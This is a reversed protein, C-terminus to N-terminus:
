ILDELEESPAESYLPRKQQDRRNADAYLKVIEPIIGPRVSAGGRGSQLPELRNKLLHLGWSEFLEGVSFVYTFADDTSIVIGVLRGNRDVVPAGSDGRAAFKDSSDRARIRIANPIYMNEGRGPYRFFIPVRTASVIGESLTGDLRHLIVGAAFVDRADVSDSISSFGAYEPVIPFNRDLQVLQLDQFIRSPASLPKPEGIRHGNISYVDLSSSASTVHAATVAFAQGNEDLVIPGLRGDLISVIPMGPSIFDPSHGSLRRVTDLGAAVTEQPVASSQGYAEVVLPFGFITSPLLDVGHPRARDPFYEFLFGRMDDFDFRGAVGVIRKVLDEAQEKRQKLEDAFPGSPPWAKLKAKGESWIPLDLDSALLKQREVLSEAQQPQKEFFRRFNPGAGHRLIVRGSLVRHNDHVARDKGSPCYTLSNETQGILEGPVYEVVLESLAFAILLKHIPASMPSYPTAERSVLTVLNRGAKRLCLSLHDRVERPIKEVSDEYVRRLEESGFKIADALAGSSNSVHAEVKRINDLESWRLATLRQAIDICLRGDDFKGFAIRLSDILGGDGCGSILFKAGAADAQGDLGDPHWYGPFLRPDTTIEDSFGSTVICARYREKSADCENKTDVAVLKKTERFGTVISSRAFHLRDVMNPPCWRAELATWETKLKKILESCINSLWDFYPIATTEEIAEDPWRNITPHIYRHRADSQRNLPTQEAEYLTVRYGLDLLAATATLGSLGAGVIAIHQGKEIEGYAQLAWLLNLVRNQQSAFSVRRAYPGLFFVHGFAESKSAAIISRAVNREASSLM